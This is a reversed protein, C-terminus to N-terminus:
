DMMPSMLRLLETCLTKAHEEMTGLPHKAPAIPSAQAKGDLAVGSGDLYSRM